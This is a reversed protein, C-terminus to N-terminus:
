VSFQTTAIFSLRKLDYFEVYFPPLVVVLVMFTLNTMSETRKEDRRTLMVVMDRTKLLISLIHCTHFTLLDDLIPDLYITEITPIVTEFDFNM